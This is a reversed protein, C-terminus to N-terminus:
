FGKIKQKAIAAENSKPHKKILEKLILRANANDGINNFAFGQKLLASPLKNGKPYKEIVEQYELIAKEYWKERYYTEGIWFQANDSKKSKPYQKLFKLFGKRATELENNDLAQKAFMYLEDKGLSKDIKKYDKEKYDHVASSEFNLYKEIRSIDAQAKEIRKETKNKSSKGSDEFAKIRQKLLFDSEEMRGSLLQLKDKLKDINVYIGASKNKSDRTIREMDPFVNEMQSKLLKVEKELKANQLQLSALREDLIVVDQQMACGSFLIVSFIIGTFITKITM